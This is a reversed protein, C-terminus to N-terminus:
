DRALVYWGGRAMAVLRFGRQMAGTMVERVAARWRHACELDRQRIEVIDPPTACLLIPADAVAASGDRPAPAEDARIDLVVAAGRAIWAEVSEVAAHDTGAHAVDATLDWEVLIRDTHDGGNIADPMAGYFDVLYDTGRAGLKVLNFHGNRRVLPDYTWSMQAIGRQLAWARQHLKLAFGVGHLQAGPDVGLIHSHMRDVRDHGGFFGLLAGVSEGGAHAVSLYNGAHTLARLMEAPVLPEGEPSWVRQWVAAARALEDLELPMAIRVGARDAAREAAAHAADAVDAPTAAGLLTGGHRSRSQPSPVM